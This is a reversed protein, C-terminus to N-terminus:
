EGGELLYLMEAMSASKPLEQLNPEGSELNRLLINM